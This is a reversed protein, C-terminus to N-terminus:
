LTFSSRTFLSRCRDLSEQGQRLCTIPGGPKVLSRDAKARDTYSSEPIGHERVVERMATMVAQTTEGPWLQAYLLRSTADDVVQILTQREEPV